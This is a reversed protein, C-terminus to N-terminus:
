HKSVMIKIPIKYNVFCIFIPIRLENENTTHTFSIFVLLYIWNSSSSIVDMIYFRFNNRQDILYKRTCEDIEDPYWIMEDTDKDWICQSYQDILYIILIIHICHLWIVDNIYLYQCKINRCSFSIINEKSTGILLEKDTIKKFPCTYTIKTGSLRSKQPWDVDIGLFTEPPDSECSRASVPHFLLSVILCLIYLVFKCIVTNLFVIMLDM